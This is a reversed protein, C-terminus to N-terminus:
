DASRNTKTHHLLSKHHLFWYIRCGRLHLSRTSHPPQPVLYARLAGRYCSYVTAAVVLVTSYITGSGSRPPAAFIVLVVLPGLVVIVLRIQCLVVMLMDDAAYLPVQEAAARM